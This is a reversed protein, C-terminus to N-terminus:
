EAADLLSTASVTFATTARSRALLRGFPDRVRLLRPRPTACDFVVYLWYDGRLNCAAAWENAEMQIGGSGARGKVEIARETADPRRSLLDFGPWDTLGAARARDPQTVDRVTAGAAEEHARAVRVAIAEVTVDHRRRAEPDVTPQVLAHAILVVEGPVIRSPEAELADLRRAKEAALGRQEAKIRDLEAGARADGKRNRETLRQRRALLEATKHDYGRATWDRREPLSREIEARHDAVMGALAVDHLWATAAETLGRARRALPMSGPRADPAGRLLLLHEVPCPTVTGAADQRLGILRSEVIGAHADWADTGRAPLPAADQAAPRRRM